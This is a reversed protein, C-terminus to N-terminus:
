QTSEFGRGGDGNHLNQQEKLTLACLGTHQKTAPAKKHLLALANQFSLLLFYCEVFIYIKTDSKTNEKQTKKENKKIKENKGKKLRSTKRKKM